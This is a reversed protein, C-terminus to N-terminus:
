RACSVHAIDGLGQIHPVLHHTQMWVEAPPTRCGRDDEVAHHIAQGNESSLRAPKLLRDDIVIVWLIHLTLVLESGLQGRQTQCQGLSEPTNVSAM